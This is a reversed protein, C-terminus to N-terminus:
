SSAIKIVQKKRSPLEIEISSLDEPKIGPYTSTSDEGINQMHNIFKDQTLYEYVFRQNAKVPNVRIVVFGTSVLLNPLPDNIFGFHKNKPRVTSYIIDNDLVKRRARSPIKDQGVILSQINDISSKTINSTDLYSIHEQDNFQTKTQPNIDALDIIKM